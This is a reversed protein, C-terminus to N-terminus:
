AVVHGFVASRLAPKLYRSDRSAGTITRTVYKGTSRLLVNQCLNSGSRLCVKNRAPPWDDSPAALPLIPRLVTVHLAMLNIALGIYLITSVVINLVERFASLGFQYFLASPIIGFYEVQNWKTETRNNNLICEFFPADLVFKFKCILSM